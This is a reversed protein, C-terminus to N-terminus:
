FHSGFAIGVLARCGGSNLLTGVSSGKTSKVKALQRLKTLCTEEQIELERTKTSSEPKIQSRSLSLNDKQRTSKQESDLVPIGTM